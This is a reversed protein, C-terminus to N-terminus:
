KPCGENSVIQPPNEDPDIGRAKSLRRYKEEQGPRWTPSKNGKAKIWKGNDDKRIKTGKPCKFKFDFFQTPRGSSDATSADPWSTGKLRGAQRARDRSMRIRKGKKTYGREGELRPKTGRKKRQQLKKECCEHKKRGLSKCTDNKGPPDHKADCKCAIDKLAKAVAVPAQIEGQANVTNQHNHFKKDSLRCAGKGDMKVDFSYLIWTSEKIFTSSVIGGAVGAEDGTSKMFQSGDIAIMNGGDATVTTTGQLLDSAMSINPYPIPVPPAPPAPTKCVDPITATSIGSSGKHVLSLAPGNVKITVPM